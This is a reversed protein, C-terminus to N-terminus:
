VQVWLESYSQLGMIVWETNGMNMIMFQIKLYLEEVEDRHLDPGLQKNHTAMNPAFWSGGIDLTTQILRERLFSATCNSRNNIIKM